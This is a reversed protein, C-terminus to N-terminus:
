VQLRYKPVGQGWGSADEESFGERVAESQTGGLARTPRKERQANKM